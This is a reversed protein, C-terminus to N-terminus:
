DSRSNSLRNLLDLTRNHLDKLAVAPDVFEVDEVEWYAVHDAFHPIREAVMPKHEIVCTAIILNAKELVQDSAQKPEREHGQPTIGYEEFAEFAYISIPGPNEHRTEPVKLGASDAVWNLGHQQAHFNFVEEAFRSRYYNGTCIFLVTKM